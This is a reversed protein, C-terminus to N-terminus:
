LTKPPYHCTRAKQEDRRKERWKSAQIGWSGVGANQKNAHTIRGRYKQPPPGMWMAVLKM